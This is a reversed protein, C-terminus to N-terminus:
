AVGGDDEPLVGALFRLLTTAGSECEIQLTEFTALELDSREFFVRTPALIIHNLMGGGPEGLSITIRDTAAKLDAGIGEFRLSDAEVQAGIEPSFIEVNVLWRNHRLSFADFFAPWERRPIQQTTTMLM